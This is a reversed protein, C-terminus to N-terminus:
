SNESFEDDSDSDEDTDMDMSDESSSTCQELLHQLNNDPVAPLYPTNQANSPISVDTAAVGLPKEINSSMMRDAFEVNARYKSHAPQLMLKHRRSQIFKPGQIKVRHEGISIDGIELTSNRIHLHGDVDHLWPLGLLLQLQSMTSGPRIFAQVTRRVNRCTFILTTFHTLVCAEGDATVMRITKKLDTSIPFCKLDFMAALGRTIICIESGQDVIGWELRLVVNTDVGDIKKMISGEIRFAKDEASVRVLVPYLPANILTSDLGVSRSHITVEASLSSTEITAEASEAPKGKKHNVRTSTHRIFKSFSPSMQCLSILDIPATFRKAIDNYDMPGMGQRAVIERLERLVKKQEKTPKKTPKVKFPKATQPQALNEADEADEEVRARKNNRTEMQFAELDFAVETIRCGLNNDGNSNGSRNGRPPLVYGTQEAFDEVSIERVPQPPESVQVEVGRSGTAVQNDTYPAQSAHNQTNNRGNDLPRGFRDHTQQPQQTYPAPPPPAIRRSDPLPRGDGQPNHVSFMKRAAFLCSRLSDSANPLCYFRLYAAEWDSCCQQLPVTCDRSPHGQDGCRLCLSKLYQPDRNTGNVAPHNSTSPHPLEVDVKLERPGANSLLPAQYNNHWNNGASGYNHYSGRYQQEQYYGHGYGTNGQVAVANSAAMLAPTRGSKMQDYLRAKKANDEEIALKKQMKMHAQTETIIQYATKLVGSTLCRAAISEKKLEKNELGQVFKEVLQTRLATLGLQQPSPFGTDSPTDTCGLQQLITQARGYYSALGEDQNQSLSLM